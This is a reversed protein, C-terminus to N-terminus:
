GRSGSTAGRREGTGISPRTQKVTACRRPRSLTPTAGPLADRASGGDEEGGRPADGRKGGGVTSAAAADATALLRVHIGERRLEDVLITVRTALRGEVVGGLSLSLCTRAEADRLARTHMRLTELNYVTAPAAFYLSGLPATIWAQLM